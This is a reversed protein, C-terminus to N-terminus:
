TATDAYKLQFKYLFIYKRIFRTERMCKQKEIQTYTPFLLTMVISFRRRGSDRNTPLNFLFFTHVFSPENIMQKSELISTDNTIFYNEFHYVM